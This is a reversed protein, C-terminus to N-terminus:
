VQKEGDQSDPKSASNEPTASASEFEKKVAVLEQRIPNLEKHVSRRIDDDLRFATNMERKLADSQRKLEAFLKGLSRAAEPLKDPGFVVLIVIGVTLLESFSVGFM